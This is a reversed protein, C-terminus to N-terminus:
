GASGSAARRQANLARQQAMAEKPSMKKKPANQQNIVRILTILRNLHWSECPEFPINLAVMWSYILENTIVQGNSKSEDVNNFWTATMNKNIYSNIEQLNANTLHHMVEFPIDPSLLMSYIYSFTEETTKETSSLFPKEWKAEWKSLSVLSHELQLSIGEPEVFEVGDDSEIVREEGIPVTITLVRQGGKM